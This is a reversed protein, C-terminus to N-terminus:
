AGGEPPQAQRYTADGFTQEAGFGCCEHQALDLTGSARPTDPPIVVTDDPGVEYQDDALWVWILGQFIMVPEEASHMHLPM